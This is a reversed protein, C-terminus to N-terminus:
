SLLLVLAFNLVGQVLRALFYPRLSLPVGDCLSVTQFHVSFGSWGVLAACIEYSLVPLTASRAVGGTMEWIGLFLTRLVPSPPLRAILFSLTEVFTSFFVVFACIRLMARASGYIARPLLLLGQPSPAKPLASSRHRSGQGRVRRFLVGTVCASLLTSGLLLWGFSRSGFLDQGVTVLLFASSPVNCFCLLHEAEERDLAGSGYLSLICRVGVPFGCLLGLVVACAGGQSVGFLRHLPRYALRGLRLAAGSQVIVESLVMFPFLSPILTTICLRLGGTMAGTALDPNRLWLFLAFLAAWGLIVTGRHRVGPVPPAKKVKQLPETM